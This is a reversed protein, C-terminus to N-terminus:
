ILAKHTNLTHRPSLSSPCLLQFPTPSPPPCLDPPPHHAAVRSLPPRAPSPRPAPPPSRPCLLLPQTPLLVSQGPQVSSLRPNNGPCKLCPTTLQPFERCADQSPATRLGQFLGSDFSCSQDIDGIAGFANGSARSRPEVPSTRSM